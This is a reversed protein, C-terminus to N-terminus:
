SSEGPQVLAVCGPEVISSNIKLREVKMRRRVVDVLSKAVSELGGRDMIENFSIKNAAGTQLWDRVQMLEDVENVILDDHQAIGLIHESDELMRDNSAAMSTNSDCFRQVDAILKSVFVDKIKISKITYRPRLLKAIFVSLALATIGGVAPGVIAILPGSSYTLAGAAVTGLAAAMDIWIDYSSERITGKLDWNM